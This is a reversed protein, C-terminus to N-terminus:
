GKNDAKFSVKGSFFSAVDPNLNIELTKWNSPVEYAIVGDMKKGAAITGDLQEKGSAMQLGMVSQSVSTNDVYADFCLASSINLDKSSNNEISFECLLFVKGDAPKNYESGASKSVNLLTMKINNQTVVQGVGYTAKSSSKVDSVASSGSSSSSKGAGGGVVAAIIIIIVIAVAIIIAILCGKGKKKKAPEQPAAQPQQQISSLNEKLPAGCKQCFNNTSPNIEGCKQCIINQNEM